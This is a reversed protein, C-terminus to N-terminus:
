KDGTGSEKEKRRRIGAQIRDRHTRSAGNNARHERDVYLYIEHIRNEHSKRINVISQVAQLMIRREDSDFEMKKVMWEMTDKLTELDRIQDRLKEIRDQM